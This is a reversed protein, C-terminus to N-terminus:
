KEYKRGEEGYELYIRGYNENYNLNPFWKLKLDKIDFNEEDIVFFGKKDIHYNFNTQFHEKTAIAKRTSDTFPAIEVISLHPNGNKSKRIIPVVVNNAAMDSCKFYGYEESLLVMSQSYISSFEAKIRALHILVEISKGNLYKKALEEASEGNQFKYNQYKQAILTDVKIIQQIYEEVLTQINLDEISFDKNYLKRKEEKTLFKTKWELKSIPKNIKELYSEYISNLTKLKDFLVKVPPPNGMEAFCNKASYASKDAVSSLLKSVNEGDKRTQELLILQKESYKEKLFVDYAYKGGLILLIFLPILPHLIKKM